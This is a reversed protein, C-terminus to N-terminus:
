LIHIISAIGWISLPLAFLWLFLYAATLVLLIIHLAIGIIITVIRIVCGSGRALFSLSMRELLRQLSFGRTVTRDLINKWPSLLTKILFWFPIIDLLAWAYRAYGVVIRKPERVFYWGLFLRLTKSVM